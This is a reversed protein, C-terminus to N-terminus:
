QRLTAATGHQATSHRCTNNPGANKARQDDSVMRCWKRSKSPLKSALCQLVADQLGQLPTSDPTPTDKASSSPWGVADWESGTPSVRCVYKHHVASTGAGFTHSLQRGPQTVQQQQLNCGRGDRVQQQRLESVGPLSQQPHQRCGKRCPVELSCDHLLQHLPSPM